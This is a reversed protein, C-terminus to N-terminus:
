LFLLNNLIHNLSHLFLQCGTHQSVCKILRLHAKNRYNTKNNLINVIEHYLSLATLFVSM